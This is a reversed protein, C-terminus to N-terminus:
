AKIKELLLLHRADKLPRVCAAVLHDVKLLEDLLRRPACMM